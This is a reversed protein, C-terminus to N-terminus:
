DFEADVLVLSNIYNKASNVQLQVKFVFNDTYMCKEHEMVYEFSKNESHILCNM